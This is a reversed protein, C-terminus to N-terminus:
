DLHKEALYQSHNVLIGPGIKDFPASVADCTVKVDIPGTDPTMSRFYQDLAEKSCSFQVGSTIPGSASGSPISGANNTLRPASRGESRGGGRQAM